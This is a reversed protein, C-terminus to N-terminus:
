MTCLFQLFSFFVCAPFLNCGSASPPVLPYVRLTGVPYSDDEKYFQTIPTQIETITTTCAIFVFFYFLFIVFRCLFQVHVFAFHSVKM